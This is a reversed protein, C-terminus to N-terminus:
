EKEEERSDGDELLIALAETTHGEELETHEEMTNVETESSEQGAAYDSKNDQAIMNEEVDKPNEDDDNEEKMVDNEVLIASALAYGFRVVSNRRPRTSSTAVPNTRRPPMRDVLSTRRDVYSALHRGSGPVVMSQMNRGSLTKSSDQRREGSNEIDPSSYRRDTTSNAHFQALFRDTRLKTLDQLQQVDRKFVDLDSLLYVGLLMLVFTCLYGLYSEIVRWDEWVVIGLIANLVLSMLTYLPIFFILSDVATAEIINEIIHIIQMAIYTILLVAQFPGSVGILAKSLTGAMASAIVSVNLLVVQVLWQPKTSLNVAFMYISSLVFVVLLFINVALAHPMFFLEEVDQDDQIGPGVLPLLLVAIVVIATAVQTEKTLKDRKMVGGVLIVNTIMKSSMATPGYLSIPGFWPAVTLFLTSLGLFLLTLLMACIKRCRSAKHGAKARDDEYLIVVNALTSSTGM